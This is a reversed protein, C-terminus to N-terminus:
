QEVNVIEGDSDTFGLNMLRGYLLYIEPELTNWRIAIERVLSIVPNEYGTM